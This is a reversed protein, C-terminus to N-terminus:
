TSRRRRARSKSGHADQQCRRLQCHGSKGLRRSKSFDKHGCASRAGGSILPAASGACHIVRAHGGVALRVARVVVQVNREGDGSDEGTLSGGLGAVSGKKICAADLNGSTCMIQHDALVKLEQGPTLGDNVQPSKRGTHQLSGHAPSSSLLPTDTPHVLLQVM